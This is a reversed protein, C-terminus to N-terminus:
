KSVRMLLRGLDACTSENSGSASAYDVLRGGLERLLAMEREDRSNRERKPFQCPGPFRGDVCRVNKLFDEYDEVDIEHCLPRSAGYISIGSGFPDDGRLEFAPTARLLQPVIEAHIMFKVLGQELTNASLAVKAGRAIAPIVFDALSARELIERDFTDYDQVSAAQV